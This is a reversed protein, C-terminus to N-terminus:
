RGADSLHCSVAAIEASGFIIRRRGIWYYRQQRKRQVKLQLAELCRASRRAEGALTSVIPAESSSVYFSV